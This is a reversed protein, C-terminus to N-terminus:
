CHAKPQAMPSLLMLQGCRPMEQPETKNGLEKHLEPIIIANLLYDNVVLTHRCGSKGTILLCRCDAAYISQGDADLKGKKKKEM